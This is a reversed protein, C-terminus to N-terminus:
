SLSGSPLPFEVTVTAGGQPRNAYTITGQLDMQVINQVLELGTSTGAQGDFGAPFGPGEDSVEVRIQDPTPLTVTLSIPGGGYKQANSVLENVVLALSSAHRIPIQADELDVTMPRPSLSSILPVVQDLASKMSTNYTDRGMTVQMTLLGHIAALSRVHIGIREIEETPIAEPHALKQMDLLASVIQLNNKVRHHTESMARQLRVNLSAIEAQIRLKGAEERKQETVDELIGIVSSAGGGPPYLAATWLRLDLPHGRRNLRRIQIGHMGGTEVTRRINDRLEDWKEAPVAPFVEGRAEEVTWGFLREAAPNWVEIRGDLDMVLIALPSREIIAELLRHAEALASETRKRETLDVVSSLVFKEGGSELLNLHSIVERPEGDKPYLKLEATHFVGEEQLQKLAAARRDADRVLGLEISTKGVIEERTFGTLREFAANADVLVGTSLRSLAVAIPLTRFMTAFNAESRRLSEGAQKRDTIDTVLVVVGNVTGAADRDPTYTVHYWRSGTEEDHGQIDFEAAQGALAQALNPEIISWAEDDLLERTQAGVIEAHPRGLLRSYARNCYHYRRDRGIYSIFAPLTDFILQLQRQNDPHGSQSPQDADQIRSSEPTGM